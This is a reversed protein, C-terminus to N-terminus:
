VNHLVVRRASDSHIARTYIDLHEDLNAHKQMQETAESALSAETELYM